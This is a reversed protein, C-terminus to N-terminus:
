KGAGVGIYTVSTQVPGGDPGSVEVAQAPRGYGRDVLAKIADVSQKNGASAIDYLYGLLVNIRPEDQGDEAQELWERVRNSFQKGKSMAAGDKCIRPDGKKFPRGRGRRHSTARQKGAM